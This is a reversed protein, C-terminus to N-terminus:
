IVFLFSSFIYTTWLIIQKFYLCIHIIDWLLNKLINSEKYIQM